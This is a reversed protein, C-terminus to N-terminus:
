GRLSPIDGLEGCPASRAFIATCPTLPSVFVAVACSDGLVLCSSGRSVIDVWRMVSLFGGAPFGRRFLALCHDVEDGVARTLDVGFSRISPFSRLVMRLIIAAATPAAARAITGSDKVAM